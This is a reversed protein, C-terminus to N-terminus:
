PGKNRPLKFGDVFFLPCGQVVWIVGAHDLFARISSSAMSDRSSQLCNHTHRQTHTNKMGGAVGGVAEWLCAGGRVGVGGTGHGHTHGWGQGMNGRM